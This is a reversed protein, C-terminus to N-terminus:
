NLEALVSGVSSVGICPGQESNEGHTDGALLPIFALLKKAAAGAWFPVEGGRERAEVPPWRPELGVQEGIRPAWPLKRLLPFKGKMAEASQMLETVAGAVGKSLAALLHKLEATPKQLIQPCRAPPLSPPSLNVFPLKRLMGGKKGGKKSRAQGVGPM